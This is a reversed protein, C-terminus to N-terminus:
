SMIETVMQELEENVRSRAQEEVVLDFQRLALAKVERLAGDYTTFRQPINERGVIYTIWPYALGPGTSRPEYRAVVRFLVAGGETLTGEAKLGARHSMIEIRIDSM